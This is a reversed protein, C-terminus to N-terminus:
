CIKNIGWKELLIAFKKLTTKSFCTRPDFQLIYNRGAVLRRHNIYNGIQEITSQDLIPIIDSYPIKYKSSIYNIVDEVTHGFNGVPANELNTGM